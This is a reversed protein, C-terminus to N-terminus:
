IMVSGIMSWSVIPYNSDKTIDDDDQANVNNNSVYEIM